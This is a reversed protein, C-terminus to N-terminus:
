DCVRLCYRLSLIFEGVVLSFEDGAFSSNVLIGGVKRLEGGEGGVEGYLDNPWKVRIGVKEYGEKTRVAQVVALGFLYQLFVIKRSQSLPLRLLLSFQLCGASSIWSNSSRGRGSM